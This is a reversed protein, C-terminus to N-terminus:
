SQQCPVAGTLIDAVECASAFGPKSALPGDQGYGSVRTYILGPHLQQVQEPGLDWKEMTGPKFNEVLM